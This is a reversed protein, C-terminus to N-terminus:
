AKGKLDLASKAEIVVQADQHLHASVKEIFNKPPDNVTVTFTLEWNAGGFPKARFKKLKRVDCRIGLTAITHVDEFECWSEIFEIGNFLPSGDPGFIQSLAKEECGMIAAIADAKVGESKFTITVTVPSEDQGGKSVHIARIETKQDLQFTM